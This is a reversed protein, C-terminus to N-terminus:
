ELPLSEMKDGFVYHNFWVWNHWIAALREKPKTIGHGFGKYVVLKAIVNNDLLGRYLEYADSIPVRKDLEGHQILTPTKAKTINTIPSTKQYIAPNSWPTSNLYQKTFPTIDTSVYYTMWDSIGAGVSIAKFINTNTTLFASIYGGQSWGMCGMKATDVFGKAILHDVGSVVDWMDGVGLNNVNLSRFKEGYGASGRYNVRLVIAGKECCQMMPYVYTPTPEPRDVGTPGGHIIVLLPYKKHSDFNKPKLLVGEIMEGDKSKWQVIENTPTNWKEIQASADSLKTLRQQNFVYIDNLSSFNRGNIAITNNQSSFSASTIVDLDIAVKNYNNKSPHYLYLSSKMKDLASFYIGDENWEIANKVEDFGNLIEKSNKNTLDYVVLHNNKYFNSITDDFFSSYVFQKSDKSWIQFNDTSTNNIVVQVKKSAMDVLAIDSRGSSKVRADPQFTFAIMKSDPSWEFNSIYYNANVLLSAKPMAYCPTHTDDKSNLKQYCPLYGATNISDIDFNMFWLSNQKFGEDEIEFGGYRENTSKQNKNEANTKIFAIQKGDASWKYADIGDEDKTVQIAEGGKPSIIFIQSKDGRDALFSIWEGNPSFQANTSSAKNTRTLQFGSNRATTESVWLEADLRNAGWDTSTVTYVVLKGDPSIVPSSVQKLSIWEEFSTSPNQSFASISILTVCYFIIISKM